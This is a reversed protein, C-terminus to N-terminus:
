VKRKKNSNNEKNKRTFRVPPELPEKINAHKNFWEQGIIVSAKDSTLEDNIIKTRMSLFYNLYEWNFPESTRTAIDFLIPYREVFFPYETKLKESIDITLNVEIKERIEKIIKIIEENDLGDKEFDKKDREM